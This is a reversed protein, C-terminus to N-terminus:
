RRFEGNGAVKKREGLCRIIPEFQEPPTALYFLRNGQTQNSKDLRSLSAALRAHDEASGYEGRHYQISPELRKWTEADFPKTRSFQEIAERCARRYEDGTMPTRSYGILACQEPLLREKAMEYIAPILKRRALDGSAGFIVLACPPASPM